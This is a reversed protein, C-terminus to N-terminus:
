RGSQQILKAVLGTWGTQHSAGLGAGNDGHFYEHFPILDRWYPDSQFKELEGFVARRGSQGQLFLAILRQSLETAVDRLTLVRGSGTPCEIQFDAGYYHDFKQLSEILLYNLPFWVPGRWNSNGGFLQTTSEAPEYGVQYTAGNLTLQYPHEQHYRSVSRIGYPSLFESEDLVRTLIRRLREANVVSFLRRNGAGTRTVSAAGACLHPRYKLFWELRTRFDPLMELLEADLTEVAFLPVLGVLSRVRLFEHAGNGYHLVDYYFGDEEDWLDVADDDCVQPHANMAHAIYFFHELFKTAVDEYANNHRALELAIALMNLCYMAMW